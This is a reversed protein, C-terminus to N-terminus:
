ECDWCNSINWIKNDTTHLAANM